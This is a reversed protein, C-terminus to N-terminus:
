GRAADHTRDRRSRGLAIGVAVAAATLALLPARPPEPVFTRSIERGTVTNGAWVTTGYPPAFYTIFFRVFGTTRGITARFSGQPVQYRDAPLSFSRGGSFSPFLFGVFNEIRVQSTMFPM